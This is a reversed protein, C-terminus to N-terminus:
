IYKLSINIHEFIRKIIKKNIIQSTKKIKLHFFDASDYSLTSFESFLYVFSGSLNIHINTLNSSFIHVKKTIVTKLISKESVIHIILNYQSLHPDYIFLIM